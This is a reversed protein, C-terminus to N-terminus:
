RGLLDAVLKKYASRKLPHIMELSLGLSQSKKFAEAAGSRDKNAWLAEALYAHAVATPEAAVAAELDKVALETRGAALQILGRTTLLGSELGATAVARDVLALAEAHNGDHLALLMALHNLALANAPDRQLIEQYQRSAEGANHQYLDQIVALCSLLPISAPNKKRAAEARERIRQWQEPSLQGQSLLRLSVEAVRDPPATDWAKDLRQLGEALQKHRALFPILDPVTNAHGPSDASRRLLDEAAATEGIQEFASALAAFQNVDAAAAAGRLLKEAEVRSGLSHLVRAKLTITSLSQPEIKELRALWAQAEEKDGHQLLATVYSALRRPNDPQIALLDQLLQRERPWNRKAHYIQGLLALEDPRLADQMWTQELLLLAEDLHSPRTALIRAKARLDEV